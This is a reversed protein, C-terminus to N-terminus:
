HHFILVPTYLILCLFLTFVYEFYGWQLSHMLSILFTVFPVFINYTVYYLSISQSNANCHGTSPDLLHLVLSPITQTVSWHNFSSVFCLIRKLHHHLHHITFIYCVKEVFSNYCAHMGWQGSFILEEKSPVMGYELISDMCKNLWIQMTTIYVTKTNIPGCQNGYQNGGIWWM